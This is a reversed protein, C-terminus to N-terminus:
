TSARSVLRRRIHERVPPFLPGELAKRPDVFGAWVVERHDIKPTPPVELDLAYVWVTDRKGEFRQAMELDPRLEDTRVELGIEERCERAGAEVPREGADVGGGPFSRFDVYSNQILLVQDRCWVGVFAGRTTPRRIRWWRRMVRYGVWFTTQYARDLWTPVGLDPSTEIM